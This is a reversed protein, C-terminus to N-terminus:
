KFPKNPGKLRTTYSDRSSQKLKKQAKKQNKSMSVQFGEDQNPGSDELVKNAEEETEVMNAWSENLFAMDQLVRDHTQRTDVSSSTDEINIQTADVFSGKSSSQSANLEKNADRVSNENLEEELHKSSDNLEEEL